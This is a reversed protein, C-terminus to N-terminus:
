LKNIARFVGQEYYTREDVADKTRATEAFADGRVFDDFYVDM